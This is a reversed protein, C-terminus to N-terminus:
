IMRRPRRIVPLIIAVPYWELARKIRDTDQRLATIQDTISQVPARHIKQRLRKEEQLPNFRTPLAGTAVYTLLIHLPQGRLSKLVAPDPKFNVVSETNEPSIM